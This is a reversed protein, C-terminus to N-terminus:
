LGNSLLQYINKVPKSLKKPFGHDMNCSECRYTDIKDPFDISMRPFVRYLFQHSTLNWLTERDPINSAKIKSLLIDCIEIMSTLETIKPNNKLDDENGHYACFYDDILKFIAESGRYVRDGSEFYININSYEFNDINSKLNDYYNNLQKSENELKKELEQLDMQDQILLNADIQARLALFVLIAGIVNIFPSTIGGITDGIEGTNNFSLWGFQTCLIPALITLPIGICLLVYGKKLTKQIKTKRDM